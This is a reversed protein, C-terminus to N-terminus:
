NEYIKVKGEKSIKKIKIKTDALVCGPAGLLLLGRPKKLGYEEAERSFCAKRNKIWEVLNKLGGVDKMSVNPDYYELMGNKKIIQKKEKLIMPIDWGKSVVLSKSFASQAESLTLGTVSNIIEEENKKTEKEINPLKPNNKVGGVVQYLARKIEEKNAFPFDVNPMLNEIVCTSVYHPGTLIVSVFSNMKAITRIRREIDPNPEELFRFFDCLVYIIGKEGEEIKQEIKEKKNVYV